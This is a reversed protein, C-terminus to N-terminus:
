DKKLFICKKKKTYLNKDVFNILERSLFIKRKDKKKTIKLNEIIKNLEHILM